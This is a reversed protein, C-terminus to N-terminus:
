EVLMVVMLRRKQEWQNKPVVPNQPVLVIERESLDKSRELSGELDKLRELSGELEREWAPLLVFHALM